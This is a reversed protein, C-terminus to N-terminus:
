NRLTDFDEDDLLATIARGFAELEYEEQSLPVKLQDGIFERGGVTLTCRCVTGLTVSTFAHNEYQVNAVLFNLLEPDAWARTVTDSSEFLRPKATDSLAKVRGFATGLYTFVDVDHWWSRMEDIGTLNQFDRNELATKLLDSVTASTVM